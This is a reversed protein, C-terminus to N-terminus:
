MDDPDRFGLWIPIRPANKIGVKQFRYKIWLGLHSAQDNWIQSRLKATLGLGTGIHLDIGPFLKEDRAIFKGLTGALVKGAKASSRKTHGLEDITAENDNHKQEEFGVIVAESDEFRKLKLLWGERWTSRGCKYPGNPARIMIGEFGKSLCEAEYAQLGKANKIWRSPVQKVRPNFKMEEIAKTLDKMRLVYPRDLDDIVLDFAWLTFDPEGDASMVASTCAQFTDGAMLEGDIGDPCIKELMSRVYLNKIPKFKRSLGLGGIKLFRIGDLKPSAILPFCLQDVSEVKGALMPESIM